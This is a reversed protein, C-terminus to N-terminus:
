ADVLYGYVDVVATEGVVATDLVGQFVDTPQGGAFGSGNVFNQAIKTADDIGSTDVIVITGGNWGITFSTSTSIDGSANKIVVGLVVAIKGAPVTYLDQPDTTGVDIEISTLLGILSSFVGIVDSIESLASLIIDLQEAVTLADGSDPQYLITDANALIPNDQTANSM